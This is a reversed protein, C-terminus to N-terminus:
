EHEMRKREMVKTVDEWGSLYPFVSQEYYTRTWFHIQDDRATNTEMWKLDEGAPVAALVQYGGEPVRDVFLGGSSRDPRMLSFARYTGAALGELTRDVDEQTIHRYLQRDVILQYPPPPENPKVRGWNSFDPMRGTKLVMQLAALATEPKVPCVAREVGSETEFPISLRYGEGDREALLAMGAGQPIEVGTLTFGVSGGPKMERFAAEVDAGCFHSTPIGDGGLFALRTGPDWPGDPGGPKLFRRRQDARLELFAGLEEAGGGSAHPLTERLREAAAQLEGEEMVTIQANGDVDVLFLAHRWQRNSSVTFIGCVRSLLMAEDGVIWKRGVALPGAMRGGDMLDGDIEKCLSRLERKGQLIVSRGFVSNQPLLFYVSRLLWMMGFVALLFFAAMLPIELRRLNLRRMSLGCVTGSMFVAAGRLAGALCRLRERRFRQATISKETM